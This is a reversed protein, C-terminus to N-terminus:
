TTVRLLRNKRTITSSTMLVALSFLCEAWWCSCRCGWYTSINCQLFAVTISWSEKYLQTADGCQLCGCQCVYRNYYRGGMVYQNNPTPSIKFRQINENTRFFLSYDGPTNDSPRVLFGCVQGVIFNFPAFSTFSFSVNLYHECCIQSLFFSYLKCHQTFTYRDDSPQLGRAQHDKRSVLQLLAVSPFCVSNVCNVSHETTIM